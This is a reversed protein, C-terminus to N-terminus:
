VFYGRRSALLQESWKSTGDSNDFQVMDVSANGDVIALRGSMPTNNVYSEDSIKKLASVHTTTLEKPSVPRRAENLVACPGSIQDGGPVVATGASVASTEPITPATPVGAVAATPASLTSTEPVYTQLGLVHAGVRPCAVKRPTRRPPTRGKKKPAQKKRRGKTNRECVTAM